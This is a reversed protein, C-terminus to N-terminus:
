SNATPGLFSTPCRDFHIPLMFLGSWYEDMQLDGTTWAYAYDGGFDMGVPYDCLLEIPEM